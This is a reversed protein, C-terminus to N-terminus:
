FNGKETRTGLFVERGEQQLGAEHWQEKTLHIGKSYATHLKGVAMALSKTRFITPPPLSTLCLSSHRWGSLSLIHSKQGSWHETFRCLPPPLAREGNQLGEWRDLVCVRSIQQWRREARDGFCKPLTWIETSVAWHELLFPLFLPSLPNHLSLWKVARDWSQVRHLLTLGAKKRRERKSLTETLLLLQRKKKITQIFRM